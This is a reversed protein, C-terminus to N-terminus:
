AGECGRGHCVVAHVRTVGAIDELPNGDVILLNATMGPLIAGFRDDANLWRAPYLTAGRIIEVPPVGVEALLIMEAITHSPVHGDHGTLIPVGADVAARVFRRQLNNLVTLRKLGEADNKGEQEALFQTFVHLTPCYCAKHENMALMLSTLKDESISEDGREFARTEFTKKDEPSGKDKIRKLEVALDDTLVAPWPSKGHEFCRVGLELAMDMPIDHLLAAGPDHVVPLGYSAAESLVRKFVIPDFKNFTKVCSVGNDALHRVIRNADAESDVAVTFDPIIENHKEWTLPSKELMPGAYFVDPGPYKGRGIDEAFKKIIAIPSGVDRIQTVGRRVFEGLVRESLQESPVDDDIHVAERIERRVEDDEAALFGLHAHCEFLGPLIFKDTCDIRRVNESRFRGAPVVDSLIDDDVVIDMGGQVVGAITDVIHGGFLLCEESM